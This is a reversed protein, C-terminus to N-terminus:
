AAGRRARIADRITRAAERERGPGMSAVAAPLLAAEIEAESLGLRALSYAERSVYYHREGPTAGAIAQAARELAGRLYADAHEPSPPQPGPRPPAPPPQAALVRKADLPRGDVSRFRYGSGPRRVPSYSLRSADKAGEDPGFGAKRQHARILKHTAEYTRADVPEAFAIVARCRPSDNTSSFSEHVICRFPQIEEAVLDVDGGEDIDIVLAHVRVLNAKRRINDTYLAPSWAGAESKSEGWTPRSLYFELQRWTMRCPVGVQPQREFRDPAVYLVDIEIEIEDNEDNEPEDLGTNSQFAM